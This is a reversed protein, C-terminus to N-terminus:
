VLMRGETSQNRGPPSWQSLNRHYPCLHGFVSVLHWLVRDALNIIDQILQTEFIYTDCPKLFKNYSLHDLHYYKLTTLDQKWAAKHVYNCILSYMKQTPASKFLYQRESEFCTKWLKIAIFCDLHERTLQSHKNPPIALNNVALLPKSSSLRDSWFILM